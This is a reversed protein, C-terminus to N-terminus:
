KKEAGNTQRPAVEGQPNSSKTEDQPITRDMESASATDTQTEGGRGETMTQTASEETSDNPDAHTYRCSCLILIASSFLLTRLLIKM